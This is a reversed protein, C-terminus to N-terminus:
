EGAEKKGPADAVDFEVPETLEVFEIKKWDWDPGMAYIGQDTAAIVMGKFMTVDIIKPRTKAEQTM